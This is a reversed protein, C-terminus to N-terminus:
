CDDSIMNMEVSLEVVSINYNLLFIIKLIRNAANLNMKRKNRASFILYYPFRCCCLKEIKYELKMYM